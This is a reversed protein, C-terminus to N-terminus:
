NSSVAEKTFDAVYEPEEKNEHAKSYIAAAEVLSPPADVPTDPTPFAKFIVSRSNIQTWQTLFQDQSQKTVIRDSSRRPDFNQKFTASLERKPTEKEIDARSDERFKLDKIKKPQVERQTQNNWMCPASTCSPDTYGQAVAHEVKYLLAVMVHNCSQSHGATCSCWAVCIESCSKRIGVWVDHAEDRVRQSPIVKCKLVIYQPSSFSFITGVFGSAFYSYGKCVKYKGVYDSDFEKKSLIFAFIKGLDLAPWTAIDNMWMESSLSMPDLDLVSVRKKYEVKLKKELETDSIAIPVDQEFATFARAVLERKKGSISLKRLSLYDQLEGLSMQIFNDYLQESDLNSLITTTSSESM